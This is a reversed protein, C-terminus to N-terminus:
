DHGLLLSIRAEDVEDSVPDVLGFVVAMANVAVVDPAQRRHRYWGLLDYIAWRAGVTVGHRAVHAIIQLANAEARSVPGEDGALWNDAYDAPARLRQALRPGSLRLAARVADAVGETWAVRKAALSLVLAVAALGARIRSRSSGCLAVIHAAEADVRAADPDESYDTLINQYGAFPVLWYALAAPDVPEAAIAPDLSPPRPKTM